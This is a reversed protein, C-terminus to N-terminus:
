ATRQMVIRGSSHAGHVSDYSFHLKRTAADFRLRLIVTVEPLLVKRFKIVELAAVRTEFGFCEAGFEIAWKIQVVGPVVPTGPFHGVLYKLEPPETCVLEFTQPAPSSRELIIPQTPGVAQEFLKELTARDRKGQRNVPIQEVLRFKKPVAVSEIRFRLSAKINDLLGRRGDLALRDRGAPSLQVVVAVYQRANDDLAIAAADLVASHERLLSEIESLSVRKDEIKALNDGRGLLELHETSLVRVLDGMQFWDDLGTFPSEVELFGDASARVKVRPLVHWTDTDQGSPQRWAVGSTETSGLVEIPRVGLVRQSHESAPGPLLGGSSFVGRWAGARDPLHEIRKLLAPSSILLNGVGTEGLLQEPYQLDFAAFPRSAVLPWLVRFLLGYVHRHSVTAYVSSDAILDGWSENFVELEFEM